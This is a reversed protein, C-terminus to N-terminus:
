PLRDSGEALGASKAEILWKSPLIKGDKVYADAIREAKM